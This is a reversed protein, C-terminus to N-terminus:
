NTIEKLTDVFDKIISIDTGLIESEIFTSKPNNMESKLITRASTHFENAGTNRKLKLVNEKRVGGGPMIIIRGNAQKIIDAILEIGDIATPKQGSTLIRDFGCSIIDELAKKPNSTRDFARHFTVSLPKAIDVLIKCRNTDVTGNSNLIGFVVGNAGIKKCYEIDAQMVAFENKSYLFDGGRPRIMVFLKIHLKKRAILITGISPTTGGETSNDCLEVRQVGGMQANIAGEASFVVVETLANIKKEIM